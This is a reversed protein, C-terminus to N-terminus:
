ETVEFDDLLLRANPPGEFMIKINNLVAGDRSEGGRFAGPGQDFNESFVVKGTPPLLLGPTLLASKGPAAVKKGGKPKGQVPGIYDTAVVIDDFWVKNWDHWPEIGSSFLADGAPKKGAWGKPWPTPTRDAWLTVFHHIYGIKPHFKVCFRAHMRDVGRTHTFLHGTKAIRLSRNGPSNPPIDPSFSLNEPQTANGWRDGLERIAGSEFDEVFLVRPDREIAEDGPFQAALGPGEALGQPKLTAVAIANAEQARTPAAVALSTILVVSGLVKHYCPNM